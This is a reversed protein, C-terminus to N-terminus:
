LDVLEELAVCGVGKKDDNVNLGLVDAYWGISVKSNVLDFIYTQMLGRVSKAKLSVYMAPRFWLRLSM